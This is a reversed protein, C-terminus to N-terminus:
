YLIDWINECLNGASIVINQIYQIYQILYFTDTLSDCVFSHSLQSILWILRVM